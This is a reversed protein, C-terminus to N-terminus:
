PSARPGEPGPQHTARRRVGRGREEGGDLAEDPFHTQVPASYTRFVLDWLPMSIGFHTTQDKFHHEMHYRRLFTGLRTKPRFHHTYYHIWDYALYGASTGSFLVWWLQPGAAFYYLLGIAAGLPWSMLPPAVLRLKDNPFEHHYGHMMFVRFKSEFTPKPVMHFLYRHLVYEFLSWALVGLVWWLPVAWPAVRGGTFGVYLGYGVIPLFWIGPTIPHASAFFKELFGNQMVRISVRKRNAPSPASMIGPWANVADRLERSYSFLSM